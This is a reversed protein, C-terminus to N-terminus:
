AEQPVGWFSATTRKDGAVVGFTKQKAGLTKIQQRVYTPTGAMMRKMRLWDLFYNMNLWVQGEWIFPLHSYEVTASELEEPPNSECYARIWGRTEGLHEAEDGTDVEEALAYMLMATEDWTPSERPKVKAAIRGCSAFILSRFSTQNMLDRVQMQAVNDGLVFEFLQVSGTLRKIDTLPIELREGLARLRDERPSEPNLLVEAKDRNEQQV